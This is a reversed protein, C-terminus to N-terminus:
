KKTEGKIRKNNKNQIENNNKKNSNTNALATENGKTIGMVNSDFWQQFIGLITSLFWYILVGAPLSSSLFLMMIPMFAMMKKQQPDTMKQNQLHMAYAILVPLIWTRDSEALDPIWFNFQPLFLLFSEAKLEISIRLTSFLAFLIPLQILVPFCGGLPNVNHERYLNMIETNMRQTDNKYKERIKNMLPQIKQMEQMSKNQKLTLPYLILKIFITLCIISLGWSGTFKYFIRLIILLIKSIAGFFGLDVIQDAEYKKLIDIDQPGAYLISSFKKVAHPALNLTLKYGTEKISYNEINNENLPINNFFFNNCAFENKLFVTYYSPANYGILISDDKFSENIQKNSYTYTRKKGEKNMFFVTQENHKYFLGPSLFISSNIITQKDTRNNFTIFFEVAYSNDSIIFEKVYEIGQPYTEPYIIPKIKLHIKNKINNIEIIHETDIKIDNININLSGNNNNTATNSKFLILEEKKDANNQIEYFKKQILDIQSLTGNFKSFTYRCLDNEIIVEKSTEIFSISYIQSYFLLLFLIIINKM